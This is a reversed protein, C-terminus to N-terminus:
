RLTLGLTQGSPQFLLLTGSPQQGATANFLIFQTTYGSGDALQPFFLEASSAAAKESTPPMSTILFNERPPRENYRTRLGVVSIESSTTSIRLMGKFPNPLTTFIQSLFKGTHGSAPLIVSTAAPLGTATGDLNTLELIVTAPTSTNNAIAIGTQINGPQGDIGSSEAYMRFAAGGLSPVGTESVVVGLPKYSFVVLATPAASNGSPVMRVAGSTTVQASGVTALKQSTRGPISYTFSSKTEGGITVDTPAGTDNTFQISGGMATDTPNVLLIQTVWGGGDAFHPVVVNGTGGAISTDVVPLTSMLFDGRENIYSRLAVVGIPLSSTFSFAGQFRATTLTNFPSENLFKAVQGNAPITASGSGLNTGEADTFFFTVSAASNNPNVIALGTNVVDTIEAYIRGANLARTAPVSTESVLVGNTRAGFIAVGAPTTGGAAPQIRGYGTQISGSNGSTLLSIGGRDTITFPTAPFVVKRILQNGSDVIFLTNSGDTFIGTPGSFQASTAPGGDGGFGRSGNGAVTNIIGDSTVRRIRYNSTDAIFLNGQGDVAVGSPSSIDAATAPGGDGSFGGFNINTGTGAVTSIIGAATVKRIRNLASDAIFFNGSGDVAIGVAGFFAASTAPGGDGGFGGTGNGAVTSIIGATNIKRIRYNSADVIFLNGTRDFAIGLPQYLRAAVRTLLSCIVLL